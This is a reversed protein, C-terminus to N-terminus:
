ERSPGEVSSEPAEGAPEQRPPRLLVEVVALARRIEDETRDQTMRYFALMHQSAMGADIEPAVSRMAAATVEEFSVGLAAAIAHRTAESPVPRVGKAYEGLQVHSITYRGDTADAAHQAMARLSRGRAHRKILEPLNV